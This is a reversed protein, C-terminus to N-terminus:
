TVIRIASEHCLGVAFKYDRDKRLTIPNELFPGIKKDNHYYTLTNNKVVMRIKDYHRIAKYRSLSKDCEGKNHLDRFMNMCIGQDSYRGTKGIEAHYEGEPGTVGICPMGGYVINEVQMTIEDKKKDVLGNVTVIAKSDWAQNMLMIRRGGDRMRLNREAVDVHVEEFCDHKIILYSLIKQLMTRMNKSPFVKHFSLLFSRMSTDYIKTM